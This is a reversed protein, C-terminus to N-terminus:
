APPSEPGRGAELDERKCREDHAKRNLRAEDALHHEVMREANICWEECHDLIAERSMGMTTAVELFGTLAQMQTSSEAAAHAAQAAFEAQLLKSQMKSQAVKIQLNSKKKQTLFDDLLKSPLKSVVTEASPAVPSLRSQQEAEAAQKAEAAKKAKSKAEADTQLRQLRRGAEAAKAAKRAKIEAETDVEVKVEVTALARKKARAKM